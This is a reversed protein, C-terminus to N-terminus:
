SGGSDVMRQGLNVFRANGGTGIGRRMFALVDQHGDLAREQFYIQTADALAFVADSYWSAAVISVGYGAQGPYNVYGYGTAEYSNLLKVLRSEPLYYTMWPMSEITSPDRRAINRYAHRGQTSFALVGDARLSGLLTKLLSKATRKPLHTFVSGLWILDYAEAPLPDPSREASFAEIYWEVDADRLDTAHIHASPLAARLFRGIRGCGCGFDLVDRIPKHRELLSERSRLVSEITWIGSIGVGFYHGLHDSMMEDHTALRRSVPLACLDEPLAM